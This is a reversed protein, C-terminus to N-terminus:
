DLFLNFMKKIVGMDVCHMKDIVIQWVVDFEYNLAMLPSLGHYGNVSAGNIHAQIMDFRSGANTRCHASDRKCYRIHTTGAIHTGSHLCYPCAQKGMHHKQNLIYSKALADVTLLMPFIKVHKKEKDRDFFIIGGKENIANIEEIFPKLFVQMNPTKGFSFGCCVMNRRKFRQELSIENIYFQIPWLSKDKTSKFVAAGDTNMTLTIYPTNPFDQKLRRFNLSDHVDRITTSSYDRNLDLIDKNQILIQKLHNELPITMFHNKRYKTDTCIEVQCNECRRVNTIKINEKTGLYKNCSHCSFHTVPEMESSRGFMKKFAYKSAPINDNGIISNVLRVLDETATWCINHRIAYAYIMVMAEKVTCNLNEHLSCFDNIDFGEDNMYSTDGNVSGSESDSDNDFLFSENSHVNDGCQTSLDNQIVSENM